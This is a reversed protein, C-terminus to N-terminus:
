HKSELVKALKFLVKSQKELISTQAEVAAVHKELTESIRNLVDALTSGDSTVFIGGLVDVIREASNGIDDVRIFEGDNDSYDFESDETTCEESEDSYEQKLSIEDRVDEFDETIETIVTNAREM